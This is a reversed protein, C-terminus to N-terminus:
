AQGKGTFPYPVTFEERDKPRGTLACYSGDQINGIVVSLYPDAVGYIENWKKTLESGKYTKAMEEFHAVLDPVISAVREKHLKWCSDAKECNQCIDEALKLNRHLNWGIGFGYFGECKLQEFITMPKQEKNKM